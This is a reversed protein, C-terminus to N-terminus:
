ENKFDFLYLFVFSYIFLCVSRWKYSGDHNVEQEQRLIPIPEGSQQGQPAALTIAVFALAGIQLKILVLLLLYYITIFLVTRKLKFTLLM